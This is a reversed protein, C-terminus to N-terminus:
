WVSSENMLLNRHTENLGEGQQEEKTCKACQAVM